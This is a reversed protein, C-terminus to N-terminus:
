HASHQAPNGTVDEPHVQSVHAWYNHDLMSISQRYTNGPQVCRDLFHTGWLCCYPAIPRLLPILVSPSRKGPTGQSSLVPHPPFLLSPQALPWFDFPSFGQAEQDSARARGTSMPTCQALMKWGSGKGRGRGFATNREARQAMGPRQGHGRLSTGVDSLMCVEADSSM